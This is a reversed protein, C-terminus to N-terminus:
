SCSSSNAGNRACEVIVLGTGNSSGAGDTELLERDRQIPVRSPFNTCGARVDLHIVDSHHILINSQCPSDSSLFLAYSSSSRLAQDPPLALCENETMAGGRLMIVGPRTERVYMAALAQILLGYQTGAIYNHTIMRTGAHNVTGCDDADPSLPRGFFIPCLFVISTEPAQILMPESGDECLNWFSAIGRDIANVCVLTPRWPGRQRTTINTGATIASLVTKVVAPDASRFFAKYAPTNTSLIGNSVYLYTLDLLHKVESAQSSCSYIRYNGSSVWDNVTGITWSSAVRLGSQSLANAVLCLALLVTTQLINFAM